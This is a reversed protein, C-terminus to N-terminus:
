KAQLLPSNDITVKKRPDPIHVKAEITNPYRPNAGEDFLEIKGTDNSYRLNDELCFAQKHGPTAV